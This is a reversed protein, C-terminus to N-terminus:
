GIQVSEEYSWKYNKNFEQLLVAMQEKTKRMRKGPVV